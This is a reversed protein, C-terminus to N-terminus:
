YKTVRGGPHVIQDQRYTMLRSLVKIQDRPVDLERLSKFIVDKRGNEYPANPPRSALGRASTYAVEDPADRYVDM